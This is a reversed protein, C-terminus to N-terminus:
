ARVEYHTRAPGPSGANVAHDRVWFRKGSAKRTRWHGRRTHGIPSAHTGGLAARERDQEEAVRLVTAYDVSRVHRYAPLPPRKLIRRNRQQERTPQVENIAAANHEIGYLLFCVVAVAFQTMLTAPASNSFMSLHEVSIVMSGDRKRVLRMNGALVVGFVPHPCTDPHMVSYITVSSQARTEGASVGILMVEGHQNQAFVGYTPFPHQLAGQEWAALARTMYEAPPRVADLDVLFVRGSKILDRGADIMRLMNERDEKSGIEKFAESVHAGVVPKAAFAAIRKYSEVVTSTM